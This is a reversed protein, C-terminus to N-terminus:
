VIKMIVKLCYRKVEYLCHRGFFAACGTMWTMLIWFQISNAHSANPRLYPQWHLGHRFMILSSFIKKNHMTQVCLQYDKFYSQFNIENSFLICAQLLLNNELRCKINTLSFTVAPQISIFCMVYYKAWM